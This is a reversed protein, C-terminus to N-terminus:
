AADTGKDDAMAGAMAGAMMRRKAGGGPVENEANALAEAAAKKAEEAEVEGDDIEQAIKEMTAATVDPVLAMAIKKKWEANFTASPITVLAMKTAMDVLNPMDDMDFKEFGKVAWRLDEGRSLSVTDLTQDMAERVFDGIAMAITQTAQQDRRKGEAPAEVRQADTVSHQTQSAVRYIDDRLDKCDQAAASEIASAGPELYEISETLGLSLTMGNGMTLRGALEDPVPSKTVTMRILGTLHAWDLASRKNLYAVQLDAIKAGLWLGEPPRMRLIPVGGPTAHETDSVLTATHNPDIKGTSMEVDNPVLQWTMCRARDYYRWEYVPRGRPELPGSRKRSVTHRICWEMEGYDDDEWDIIERPHVPCLYTRNLGEAEQQALNAPLVEGPAPKDILHFTVGLLLAQAARLRFFEVLDTRRFDCDGLFTEAYWEPTESEDDDKLRFEPRQMFALAAYFDIIHAMFNHYHFRRVREKWAEDPEYVRKWLIRGSREIRDKLAHQGKYLADLDAWYEGCYNPHCQSLVAFTPGPKEVVLPTEPKRASKQVDPLARELEVIPMAAMHTTSEPYVGGHPM